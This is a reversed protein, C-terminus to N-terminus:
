IHEIDRQKDREQESDERELMRRAAEIGGVGFAVALALVIGGFLIAFATLVINPALQLQELAMALILVSLLLRVAEALIRAYRLGTNVAALLVARTIFGTFLYGGILIMLAAFARPLYLFFQNVLSDLADVNLASLGAMLSISLILWFIGGALIGTPTGWLHEKRLFATFGMRDCWRDFKLANLLKRLLAKLLWATAVGVGFIILAALLNPFFDRFRGLVTRIPGMILEWYSEM